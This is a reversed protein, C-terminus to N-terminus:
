RLSVSLAVSTKVVISPMRTNIGPTGFPLYIQPQPRRDLDDLLVDDVVGVVNVVADDRGLMRPFMGTFQRGVAPRGDIFYTRVFTDNVLMSIPGPAMDEAALYRGALLRLGLAESYGPTIVNLLVRAVVPEGDSTTMGPLRFGFSSIAVGFPAMNGAGAALVGDRARLRQLLATVFQETRNPNGGPESVHVDAVLVNASNYGADVDLLAVLSRAFLTAGVLLVVALATEGVLLSRRLGGGSPGVSRAGGARMSPAVAVQSYRLAPLAGSVTGVFVAAVIAVILFRADVHIEGVRPFDAPALSPVSTTLVWGLGVGLAGGCLSMVLSETLLQRALRGRSAGLATRIGLERTRASSRALLLNAVNACAILLVLGVGGGLMVLAPRVDSTMQDTIARVRVEVPDGVGLVLEAAPREVSRAYATGEAEAQTATVGPALRGVAMVMGIVTADGDVAPVSLPLYFAVGEATNPPFDLRVGMVGVIRHSVDDVALREGLVQPDSGLWDRWTDHALIAVPEAGIAADAEVFLRGTSPVTRLVELLSPTLRTGRARRTTDAVAVTHEGVTYSGLGQLTTSSQTWADYTPRSLLPTSIPANGGPHVEWLRVLQDSDVYPLPRLLVGYVVSFVTATGGVGLAITGLTAIAFGRNRVILRLAHKVDQLTDM